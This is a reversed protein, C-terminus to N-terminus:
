RRRRHASAPAVDKLWALAGPVSEWLDVAHARYELAEDESGIMADALSFELRPDAIRILARPVHKNARVAIRLATQAAEREGKAFSALCRAYVINVDTDDAYRACLALAADWAQTDLYRDVLTARLGHSDDPNWRLLQDCVAIAEDDRGLRLLVDHYRITLRLVPRNAIIGWPITAGAPASQMTSDAIRWARALIPELLIRDTLTAEGIRDSEIATAIDDLVDLSDAARPEHKLFDLWPEPADWANQDAVLQTALPKGPPFVAHWRVEIEAFAEARVIFYNSADVAGTESARDRGLAAENSQARRLDAAILPASREIEDASIGMKRLHDILSSELDGDALAPQSAASVVEYGTPVAREGLAILQLGIRVADLGRAGLDMTALAREPDHSANRFFHLLAPSPDEQKANRHLWFQARAKAEVIRREKVLMTVELVAADPSDPNDVLAIRLCEWARDRQGADACISALRHAAEARIFRPAQAQMAELLAIGSEGDGQAAYADLMTDLADILREDFRDFPPAFLPALLQVAEEAREDDLLAHAASGMFGLPIRKAAILRDLERPALERVVVHWIEEAEIVPFNALVSCCHKFKKGSGCPCPDNRGPGAVPKPRWDNSPLPTANWIARGWVTGLAPAGASGIEAHRAMEDACEGTFWDIFSSYPEGSLIKGVAGHMLGVFDLNPYDDSLPDM